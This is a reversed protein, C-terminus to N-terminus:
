SQYSCAESMKLYQLQEVQGASNQYTMKATIVKCRMTPPEEIDLVKAVDLKMGYQYAQVPGAAQEPMPSAAHAAGALWILGVGILAVQKM